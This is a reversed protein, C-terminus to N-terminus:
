TNSSTESSAILLSGSSSQHSSRSLECPPAAPSSSFRTPWRQTELCNHQVQTTIPARLRAVKPYTELREHLSLQLRGTVRTTTLGSQSGASLQLCPTM